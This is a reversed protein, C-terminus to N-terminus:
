FSKNLNRVAQLLTWNTNHNHTRVIEILPDQKSEVYEMLKTVEAIYAGETQM